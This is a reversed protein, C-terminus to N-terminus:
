GDREPAWPVLVFEYHRHPVGERKFTRCVFGAPTVKRTELLRWIAGEVVQEKLGQEVLEDVVAGMTKGGEGADNLVSLVIADVDHSPSPAM